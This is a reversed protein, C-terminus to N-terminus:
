RQEDHGALTCAGARTVFHLGGGPGLSFGEPNGAAIDLVLRPHHWSRYIRADIYFPCGEIVGLLMDAAGVIFEGAPFCM